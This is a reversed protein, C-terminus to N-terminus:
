RTVRVPANRNDPAFDAVESGWRTSFNVTFHEQSFGKSPLLSAPVTVRLTNGTVTVSGEPLTQAPVRPMTHDIVEGFGRRAVAVSADYHVGTALNGHYAVGRGRDLSWVYFGGATIDIEGALTSEFVFNTGDFTVEAQRVDLDATESGTYTPLFDNRADNILSPRDAGTLDDDRGCAQLAVLAATMLAATRGALRFTRATGM